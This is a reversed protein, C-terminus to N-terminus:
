SLFFAFVGFKDKDQAKVDMKTLKKEVYDFVNRDQYGIIFLTTQLGVSSYM